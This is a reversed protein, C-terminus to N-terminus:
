RWMKKIIGRIKQHRRPGECGYVKRCEYPKVEHISCFRKENLFICETSNPKQKPSLSYIDDEVHEACYERVFDQESLGLHKAAVPIEEPVFWGPERTCCEKCKDCDCGQKKSLPMHVGM